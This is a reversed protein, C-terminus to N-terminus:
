IGRIFKGNFVRNYSPDTYIKGSAIYLKIEDGVSLKMQWDISILHNDGSNNNTDHIFKLIDRGNKRVYIHTAINSGNHGRFKFEYYGELNCKFKTGDFANGINVLAKSFTLYSGASIHGSTEYYTFMVSGAANSNM